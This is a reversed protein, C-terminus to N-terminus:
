PPLRGVLGALCDLYTGRLGGGEGEGEGRLVLSFFFFFFLVLYDVYPSIVPSYYSLFSFVLGAFANNGWYLSPYM